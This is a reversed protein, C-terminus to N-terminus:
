CRGFLWCAVNRARQGGRFVRGRGCAAYADIATVLVLLCAISLIKKM